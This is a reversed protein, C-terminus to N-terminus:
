QGIYGKSIISELIRRLIDEAAVKGYKEYFSKVLNFILDAVEKPLSAWINDLLQDVTPSLKWQKIRDYSPQFSKAINELWKVLGM